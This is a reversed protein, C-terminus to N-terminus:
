FVIVTDTAATFHITAQHKEKSDFRLSFTYDGYAVESLGTEIKRPCLCNCPMVGTDWDNLIITNGQRKCSSHPTLCCVFDPDYHVIQMQKDGICSVSLIHKWSYEMWEEETWEEPDTIGIDEAPMRRPARDGILEQLDPHCDSVTTKPHRAESYCGSLLICCGALLLFFAKKM